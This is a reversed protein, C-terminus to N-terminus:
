SKLIKINLYKGMQCKDKREKKLKTKISTFNVNCLILWKFHVILHRKSCELVNVDGWFFVMDMLCIVGWGGRGGWEGDGPM